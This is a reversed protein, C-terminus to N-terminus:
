RCVNGDVDVVRSRQLSIFFKYSINVICYIRTRVAYNIFSKPKDAIAVIHIGCEWMWVSVCPGLTDLQLPSFISVSLPESSFVPLVFQFAYVTCINDCKQHNGHSKTHPAPTQPTKNTRSPAHTGNLVAVPRLHLPHSLGLVFRCSSASGLSLIGNSNVAKLVLKGSKQKDTRCNFLTFVGTM